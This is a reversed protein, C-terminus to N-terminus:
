KDQLRHIIANANNNWCGDARLATAGKFTGGNSDFKVMCYTEDGGCAVLMTGLTLMLILILLIKSKM